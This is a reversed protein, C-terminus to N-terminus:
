WSGMSALRVELARGWLRDVWYDSDSDHASIELFDISWTFSEGGERISEAYLEDAKAMKLGTVKEELRTKRETAM